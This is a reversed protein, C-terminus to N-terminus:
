IHILSLKRTERIRVTADHLDSSDGYLRPADGDCEPFTIVYRYGESISDAYASRSVAIDGCVVVAYRGDWFESQVWAVSNFVAATGGYSANVNTVGVPLLHQARLSALHDQVHPADAGDCASYDLVLPM